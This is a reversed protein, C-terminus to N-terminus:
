HQTDSPADLKGTPYGVNIVGTAAADQGTPYRVNLMGYGPCKVGGYGPCRAGDSIWCKVGEYGPCRTEGYGLSNVFKEIVLRIMGNHLIASKM